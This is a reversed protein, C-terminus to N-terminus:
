RKVDSPQSNLELIQVVTVLRQAISGILKQTFIPLVHVLFQFLQNEIRECQDYLIRNYIHQVLHRILFQKRRFISFSRLM